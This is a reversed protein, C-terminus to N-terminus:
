SVEPIRVPEETNGRNLAHSTISTVRMTTREETNAPTPTAPRAWEFAPCEGTWDRDPHPCCGSDRVQAERGDNAWGPVTVVKPSHVSTFEPLLTEGGSRLLAAM